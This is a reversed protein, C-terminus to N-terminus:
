ANDNTNQEIKQQVWEWYGLHTDENAVEYQWENRPYGAHDAWLDMVRDWLPTAAVTAAEFADTVEPLDMRASVLFTAYHREYGTICISGPRVRLATLESKRWLGVRKAVELFHTFSDVDICVPADDVNAETLGPYFEPLGDFFHVEASRCCSIHIDGTVRSCLKTAAVRVEAVTTITAADLLVAAYNAHESQITAFLIKM